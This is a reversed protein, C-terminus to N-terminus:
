VLVPLRLTVLTGEGPRSNVSANFGPGYNLALRMNVSALGTHPRDNQQLELVDFGCGNDRISIVLVDNERIASIEVVGTKDLSRFGHVVSNEVITQLLFKNVNLNLLEEDVSTRMVIDPYRMNQILVYEQVVELEEKLSVLVKGTDAAYRLLRDLATVTERINDQKNIVAMWRITDLANYVFHPSIHNRLAKLEAQNKAREERAVDDLLGQIRCTMESLSDELRRVEDGTFRSRLRSMEMSGSGIKDVSATLVKLPRGLGSALIFSMLGLFVTYLLLFLVLSRRIPIFGAFVEAESLERIFLWGSERSRAFIYYVRGSDNKTVRHGYFLNGSQIIDEVWGAQWNEGILTKDSSSLVVGAPSLVYDKGTSSPIGGAYIDDFFAERVLFLLQGIEVGEKRILRMAGFYWAELGFVSKYKGAPIWVLRGPIEAAKEYYEDMCTSIDPINTGQLILASETRVVASMLYKDANIITALIGSINNRAAEPLLNSSVSNQLSSMVSDNYYVQMSAKRYENLRLDVRKVSERVVLEGAELTRREVTKSYIFVVSAFLVVSPIAILVLFSFFIQNQM